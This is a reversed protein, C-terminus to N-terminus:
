QESELATIVRRLTEINVRTVKADYVYRGEECIRLAEQEEALRIRATNLADARAQQRVASDPRSAM